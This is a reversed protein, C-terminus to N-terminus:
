GARKLKPAVNVGLGGLKKETERILRDCEAKLSDRVCDAGVITWVDLKTGELWIAFDGFSGCEAGRRLNLFKELHNRLAIVEELDEIYM